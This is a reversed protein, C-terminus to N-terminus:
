AGVAIEKAKMKPATVQLVGKDISATVKDVDVPAPLDFRRFVNKGFFECFCVGGDNGEHTHASDAQILIADPTASVEIDKAEFGPLAIRAKFAKDEDVLEAQAFTVDREAQLWDDLDSGNSGNRKQFLEFARRRVADVMSKARELFSPSMTERDELKHIAIQTM